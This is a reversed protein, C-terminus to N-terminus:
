KLYFQQMLKVKKKYSKGLETSFYRGADFGEEQDLSFTIDKFTKITATDTPITETNSYDKSCSNLM